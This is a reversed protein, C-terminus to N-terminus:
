KSANMHTDKGFARLDYNENGKGRLKERKRRDASFSYVPQKQFLDM